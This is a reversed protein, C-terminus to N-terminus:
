RFTAVAMGGELFTFKNPNMGQSRIHSKLTPNTTQQMVELIQGNRLHLSNITDLSVIPCCGDFLLTTNRIDYVSEIQTLLPVDNFVTVPASKSESFKIFLTTSM